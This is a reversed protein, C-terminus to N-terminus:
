DEAERVVTASPTTGVTYRAPQKRRRKGPEALQLVVDFTRGQGNPRSEPAIEYSVLGRGPTWGHDSVSLPPSESLLDAPTRGDRWASLARELHQRAADADAVTPPGTGCGSFPLAALLGVVAARCGARSPGRTPTDCPTPM